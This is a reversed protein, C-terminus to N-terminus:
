VVLSADANGESDGICEFRSAATVSGHGSEPLGILEPYHQAAAAPLLYAAFM